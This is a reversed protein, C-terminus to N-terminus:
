RARLVALASACAKRAQADAAQDYASELARVSSAVHEAPLQALCSTHISRPPKNAKYAIEFRLSDKMVKTASNM